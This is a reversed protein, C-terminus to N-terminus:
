NFISNMRYATMSEIEVLGGTTFMKIQNCGEEGFYIASLMTEGENAVVEIGSWDLVIRLEVFGNKDPTAKATYTKMMDPYDLHLKTRDLSYTQDAPNYTLTLETGNGGFFSFNLKAGDVPRFRVCLDMTSATINGFPNEAGEKLVGSQTEYIKAGRLTDFEAIFDRRIKYVGDEKVLKWEVPITAVGNCPWDVAIDNAYKWNGYWDIEVRRGDPMSNFTMAGYRDPSKDFLVKEQTPVFKKGDFDGIYYGEGALALVWKSEDMGEVKMKYLDPCETWLDDNRSEKTWDRLNTSSYVRLPGGAVICIWKQSEEHWFAKPDRFAPEGDNTIVSDPIKTFTRGKDTSYAIGVSQENQRTTDAYTFVAVLGSGGGFFGSTDNEDVVCSGSWIVKGNGWPIAVPLEEWHILDTSVAHGWSIAGFYNSGPNHQYFMHYEGEYYVLGNIDNSWGSKSSYHLQPRNTERYLDETVTLPDAAINTVTNQINVNHDIVIKEEEEEQNEATTPVSTVDSLEGSTKNSKCGTMLFVFLLVFLLVLIKYVSNRM